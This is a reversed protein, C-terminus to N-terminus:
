YCVGLRLIRFSYETNNYISIIKESVVIDKREVCSKIVKTHTLNSVELFYDQFSRNCLYTAKSWDSTISSASLNELMTAERVEQVKCLSDLFSDVSLFHNSDFYNVNTVLLIAGLLTLGILMEFM